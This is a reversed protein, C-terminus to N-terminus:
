PRAAGRSSRRAHGRRRGGGAAQDAFARRVRDRGRRSACLLCGGRGVRGGPQGSRGRRAADSRRRAHGARLPRRGGHTVCRSPGAGHVSVREHPLALISAAVVLVLLPRRGARLSGPVTHARRYPGGAFDGGLVPLVPSCSVAGSFGSGFSTPPGPRWRPHYRPLSTTGRDTVSRPTGTYSARGGWTSRAARSWSTM